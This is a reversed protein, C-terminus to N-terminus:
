ATKNKVLFLMLNFLLFTKLWYSKNKYCFPQLMLVCALWICVPVETKLFTFASLIQLQFLFTAVALTQLLSEKRLPNLKQRFAAWVTSHKSAGFRSSGSHVQHAKVAQLPEGDWSLRARNKGTEKNPPPPMKALSLQKQPLDFPWRWSIVGLQM